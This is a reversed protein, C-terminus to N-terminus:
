DGVRVVAKGLVLRADLDALARGFDDLDYTAGIPPDITGDALLPLLAQWQEQLYGPRAMAYHGWGVGRVDTNTLLLRNVKV